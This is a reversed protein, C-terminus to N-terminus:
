KGKAVKAVSAKKVKKSAIKKERRAKFLAAVQPWSLRQEKQNGVKWSLSGRSVKLTGLKGSVNHVDLSLAAQQKPLEVTGATMLVRHENGEDEEAATDRALQTKKTAM